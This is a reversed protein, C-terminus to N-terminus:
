HQQMRMTTPMLNKVGVKLRVTQKGLGEALWVLETVSKANMKTLIRSRHTEVTRHSIGLESAIAKCSKNQIVLDFVARERATLLAHKQAAEAHQVTAKRLRTDRSIAAHVIALLSATEFPKEIFDMAGAKMAQVAMAVDAAGTMMIVPLAIRHEILLAQLELGSRGPMKVDLLLCGPIAPRYFILFDEASAFTQVRIGELRFLRSLANRVGEDDDVVFVSAQTSLGNIM